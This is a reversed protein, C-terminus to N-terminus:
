KSVEWVKGMNLDAGPPICGKCAAPSSECGSCGNCDGCGNGSPLLNVNKIMGTHELYELQRKIDEASTGLMAALEQITRTNGDKLIELLREM